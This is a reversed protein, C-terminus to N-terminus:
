PKTVDVRAVEVHYSERRLRAAGEGADVGIRAAFGARHAVITGELTVREGVEVRFPSESDNALQVWIRDRVGKGIWFGEDAPVAQVPAGRAEVRAGAHRQLGAGIALPEVPNGARTSVLPPPERRVPHPEDGLAGSVIVAATGVAATAAAAQVQGSRAQRALWRLVEGLAAVPVLAELGRRRLMLPESMSACHGCEMLHQGVGLSHQRRRDGSSLALLVPKCRATPPEDRRMALLYEVRLKSRARALRVAVGGPTSDLARALTATDTGELEHAVVAARDREPLRRLAAGVAQREERELTKEEPRDPDRLDILRHAHRRRRDEKRALSSVLNRATVIGYPVLADDELRPRAEILRTLSEQVLDDVTDPDRVRAGVVRRIVATVEALSGDDRGGHPQHVAM